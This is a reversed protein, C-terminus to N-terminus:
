SLVTAVDFSLEHWPEPTNAEGFQPPRLDVLENPIKLVVPASSRCDVADVRGQRAREAGGFGEVEDVEVGRLLHLQWLHGLLLDGDPFWGGRLHEEGLHRLM